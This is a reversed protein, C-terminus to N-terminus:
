QGNREGHTQDDRAFIHGGKREQAQYKAIAGRKRRWQLMVMAEEGAVDDAARFCQFLRQPLRRDGVYYIADHEGGQLERRPVMLRALEVFRLCLCQALRDDRNRLKEHAIFLSFSGARRVLAGFKQHDIDHGRMAGYIREARGKDSSQKGPVDIAKTAGRPVSRANDRQGRKSPIARSPPPSDDQDRRHASRRM